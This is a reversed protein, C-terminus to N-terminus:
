PDFFRITLVLFSWFGRKKEPGFPGMGLDFKMRYQIQSWTERYINVRSINSNPKQLDALLSVDGLNWSINLKVISTKGNGRAQIIHIHTYIYVYIYIHMYTHMYTHAYVYM